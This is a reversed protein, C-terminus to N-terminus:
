EFILRVTAPIDLEDIVGSRDADALDCEGSDNSQILKVLEPQANPNSEIRRMSIM